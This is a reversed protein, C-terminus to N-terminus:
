RFGDRSRKTLIWGFKGLDDILYDAIKSETGLTRLHRKLRRIAEERMEGLPKDKLDPHEKIIGHPSLKLAELPAAQRFGTQETFFYVNTGQIKVAITETALRFLLEM